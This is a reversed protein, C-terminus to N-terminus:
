VESYTATSAGTEACLLDVSLGLRIATEALVDGFKLLKKDSHNM